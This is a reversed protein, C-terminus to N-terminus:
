NLICFNHNALMMLETFKFPAHTSKDFHAHFLCLAISIVFDLYCSFVQSTPFHFMIKKILLLDQKSYLVSIFYRLRTNLFEVFPFNEFFVSTLHIIICYHLIVEDCIQTYQLARKSRIIWRSKDSQRM